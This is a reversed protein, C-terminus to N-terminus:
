SIGSSCCTVMKIDHIKNHFIIGFLGFFVLFLSSLSNIYEPPMIEGDVYIIFHTIYENLVGLTSILKNSNAEIAEFAELVSSVNLNWETDIFNEFIGNLKINVM